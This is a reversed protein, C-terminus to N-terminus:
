ARAARVRWAARTGRAGGRRRADAPDRQAGGHEVVVVALRGAGDAGDLVDGIALLGLPLHVAQDLDELGGGVQDGDGIGLAVQMYRLAAALRKTPTDLRRPAGGRARCRTRRGDELPEDTSIRGTTSALACPRALEREDGASPPTMGTHACSSRWESGLVALDEVRDDHVVEALALRELVPQGVLGGVIGEGAQGVSRQQDVAEVAGQGAGAAVLPADGHQEEVEVVELHDVVAQAVAQAVAQEDGDALAQGQGQARAVGHGAEAAVLEDHEALVHEVLGVGIATASRISRATLPRNTTSSVSTNTPTLM